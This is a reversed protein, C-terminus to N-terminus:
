EDVEAIFNVDRLGGAFLAMHGSECADFTGEITVHRRDCAPVQSRADWWIARMPPVPSPEKCRALRQAHPPRTVDRESKYLGQDEKQNVLFARIRVYAGDYREPDALLGGFDVDSARGDSTGFSCVHDSRVVESTRSPRAHNCSAVWPLCTM